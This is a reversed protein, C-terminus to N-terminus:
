IWCVGCDLSSLAEALIRGWGSCRGVTSRRRGQSSGEVLNSRNSRGRSWSLNFPWGGDAIVDLPREERM